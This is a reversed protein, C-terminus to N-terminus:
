PSATPIATSWGRWRSRPCDDRLEEVPRRRPDGLKGPNDSDSLYIQGILGTPTAGLLEVARAGRQERRNIGSTATGTAGDVRTRENSSLV